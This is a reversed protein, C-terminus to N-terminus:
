PGLFRAHHADTFCRTYLGVVVAVKLQIREPVRLWHLNVLADIISDSSHQPLDDTGVREHCVSSPSHPLGSPRYWIDHKQLGTAVVGFNSRADTANTVAYFSSNPAITSTSARCFMKIGDETRPNADAPRHGNWPRNPWLNCM